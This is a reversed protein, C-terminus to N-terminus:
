NIRKTFETGNFKELLNKDKKNIFRAIFGRKRFTNPYNIVPNLFNFTFSLEFYIFLNGIKVATFQVIPKRYFLDGSFKTLIDFM